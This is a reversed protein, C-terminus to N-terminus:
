GGALEVFRMGGGEGDVRVVELALVPAPGDLMQAQGTVIMGPRLGLLGPHRFSIGGDSLDHCPVVLEGFSEHSVRVLCALRTRPHRRQEKM